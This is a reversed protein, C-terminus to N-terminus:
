SAATPDVVQATFVIAGTVTDRIVFLFPHDIVVYTIPPPPGGAGFGGVVTAAAATTGVEDVHMIARQKLLGVYLDRGGDIGSCNAAEDFADPMGLTQLM